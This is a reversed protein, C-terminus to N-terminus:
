RFTRRTQRGADVCEQGRACARAVVNRADERDEATSGVFEGCQKIGIRREHVAAVRFQDASSETATHECQAARGKEVDGGLVAVEVGGAEEKIVPGIDVGVGVHVLVTNTSLSRDKVRESMEHTEIGFDAFQEHFSTGVECDSGANGAM